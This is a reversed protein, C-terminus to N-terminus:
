ANPSVRPSSSAPPVPAMPIALAWSIHAPRQSWPGFQTGARSRALTHTHTCAQTSTLTPLARPTYIRHNLCQPSVRLRPSM